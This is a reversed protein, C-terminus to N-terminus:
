RPAAILVTEPGALTHRDLWVRLEEVQAKANPRPELRAVASEVLGIARARQEGADWLLEGLMAEAEARTKVDASQTSRALIQELLARARDRQGKGIAVEALMTDAEPDYGGDDAHSAASIASAETLAVEAEDYRGLAVLERSLAALGAGLDSGHDAQRRLRVVEQLTSAAKAHDGAAHLAGALNQLSGLRAPHDEALSNGMRRMSEEIAAVAEAYRGLEALATGRMGLATWARDHDPGLAADAIALSRDFHALAEGPEGAELANWGLDLLVSAVQPHDPGYAGESIMLARQATDAAEQRRDLARLLQGYHLLPAVLDPDDPGAAAELAAIAGAFYPEAELERERDAFVRGNIVMARAVLRPDTGDGQALGLATRALWQGQEAVGDRRVLLWALSVAAAAAAHHHRHALATDFAHELLPGAEADRGLDILTGAAVVEAEAQVPAYDIAIAERRADDALALADDLRNARDLLRAEALTDRLRAVVERTEARSPPPVRERLTALDECAEVSELGHVLEIARATIQPDGEQLLAITEGLGHARARLCDSRLDYAEDSQERRLLTAECSERHMAVWSEAYADLAAVVRVRTSEAYSANGRRLAEELAARQPPGWTAALEDESSTCAPTRGRWIAGGIAVALVLGVAPARLRRATEVQDLSALLTEMDPWRAAPLPALGRDLIRLLRRPLRTGAPPPPPGKLKAAAISRLDRGAFPPQGVLAKWLAVCFAYQDTRADVPDGLHQEPAMYPPTGVVTGHATLTTGLDGPGLEASPAVSESGAGPAEFVGSDVAARALGFDMVRARGDDGVVVNSPKFDRHVIGEAHAAALGRGAQVFMALIERVSRQRASLWTELTAGRVYEMAIFVAGRDVDVDFVSVVNPHALQAMAKAERLMRAADSTDSSRHLLLQKLAVERGLKPDYARLVRGMGGAGIEDIVLYRGLARPPEPGTLSADGGDGITRQQEADPTSDM